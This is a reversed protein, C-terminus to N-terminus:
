QIRVVHCSTGSFRTLRDCLTQAEEIGSMPGLRLRYLRATSGADGLNGIGAEDVAFFVMDRYPTLLGSGDEGSFRALMRNWYDNLAGVSTDAQLEVAVGVQNSSIIPINTQPLFAGATNRDAPLLNGAGGGSFGGGMPMGGMGMPMMQGGMMMQNGGMGMMGPAAMPVGGFGVANLSQTQRAAVNAEALAMVSAADAILFPRSRQKICVLRQGSRLVMDGVAEVILLRGNEGDTRFGVPSEGGEILLSVVPRQTMAIVKDGFDIYTFIRDRWVREPAIVFDDPNPVFIDLDFRFESPDIKMSRIWGFDEGDAGFTGGPARRRNFLSGGGASPGAPSAGSVMPQAFGDIIVDVQSHTIESATSPEIRVYFTYRNGSAGLVILNTDGGEVGNAPQIMVSNNGVRELTHEDFLAANGAIMDEIVEGQPLNIMTMMGQRLRIPLTTGPSWHLQAHGPRISGPSMNVNPNNWAAQAAEASKAGLLILCFVVLKLM